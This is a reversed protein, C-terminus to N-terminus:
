TNFVDRSRTTGIKCTKRCKRTELDSNQHSRRGIMSESYGKSKLSKSQMRKYGRGDSQQKKKSKGINQRKKKVVVKEKIEQNRRRRAWAKEKTKMSKVSKLHEKQKEVEDVSKRQTENEIQKLFILTPM